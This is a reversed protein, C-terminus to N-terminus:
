NSNLGHDECITRAHSVFGLAVFVVFVLIATGRNNEFDNSYKFIDYGHLVIMTSPIIIGGRFFLSEGDNYSFLRIVQWVVLATLLILGLGLFWTVFFLM